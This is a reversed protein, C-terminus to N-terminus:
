IVNYEEKMEKQFYQELKKTKIFLIFEELYMRLDIDLSKYPTFSFQHINRLTISKKGDYLEFVLYNVQEAGFLDLYFRWQCSNLYKLYDFGHWCTKFENIHLGQLQDVKGVIDVFGYRTPYGKAIKQEFPFNYNIYNFCKTMIDYSFEIDNSIFASGDLNLPAKYGQELLNHFVTGLETYRTPPSIGKITDILMAETLWDEKLYLLFKDIITTSIIM